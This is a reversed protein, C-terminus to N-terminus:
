HLPIFINDILRTTGFRVALAILVEPVDLTTLETFQDPHIFAIYDISAPNGSQIIEKISSHIKSVDKEGELIRQSAYQLSRYLVLANKRETESLYVNRSSMALGDPERVIPAIIM